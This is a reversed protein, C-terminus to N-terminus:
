QYSAFRYLPNTPHTSRNMANMTSSSRSTSTRSCRRANRQRSACSVTASRRASSISTPIVPAQPRSRSSSRVSHGRQLDLVQVLRERRDLSPERRWSPADVVQGELDAPVDEDRDDPGDPQPFLVSSFMTEPISVGVCPCRRPRRPRGAPGARAVDELLGPEQGPAGHHLVHEVHELASRALRRSRACSRGASPRDRPRRLGTGRALEGAAHLLPHADRAGEGDLGVQQQHVLREAVEVRDGRPPEALLQLLDPRLRLLGDSNTVWSMMSATCSESRTRISAGPPRRYASTGISRGRGRRADSVCTAVACASSRRRNSVICSSVSAAALWRRRSSVVIAISCCRSPASGPRPSGRGSRHASAVQQDAAPPCRGGVAAAKRDDVGGRSPLDGVDRRGALGVDVGRDRRAARGEVLPRPAPHRRCSPSPGEM